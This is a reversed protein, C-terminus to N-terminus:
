YCQDSLVLASLTDPFDLPGTTFLAALHERSPSPPCVSQPLGSRLSSFGVSVPPVSSPTSAPPSLRFSPLGRVNQTCIVIIVSRNAFTSPLLCVSDRATCGDPRSICQTTCDDVWTNGGWPVELRSQQLNFSCIQCNLKTRQIYTNWLVKTLRIIFARYWMFVGYMRRFFLVQSERTVTSAQGPNHTSGSLWGRGGLRLIHVSSRLGTRSTGEVCIGIAKFSKIM